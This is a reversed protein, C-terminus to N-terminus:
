INKFLVLKNRYSWSYYLVSICLLINPQLLHSTYPRDSSHAALYQKQWLRCKKAFFGREQLKFYYSIITLHYHFEVHPPPPHVICYPSPHISHPATPTTTQITIFTPRCVSITRNHHDSMFRRGCILENRTTQDPQWM